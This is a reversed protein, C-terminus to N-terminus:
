NDNIWETTKPSYNTQSINRIRAGQSFYVLCMTRSHGSAIDAYM